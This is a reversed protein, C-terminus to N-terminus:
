DFYQLGERARQNITGGRLLVCILDSRASGQALKVNSFHPMTRLYARCEGCTILIVLSSVTMVDGGGGVCMRVSAYVCVCVCVCKTRLDHHGHQKRVHNAVRLELILLDHVEDVVIECHYCM